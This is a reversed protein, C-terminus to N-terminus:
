FATVNKVFTFTSDVLHMFSPGKWVIRTDYGAYNNGYQVVVLAIPSASRSFASDVAQTVRTCVSDNTVITVLSSDIAASLGLASRAAAASTRNPNSESVTARIVRRLALAETTAARCSFHALHPTNSATARLDTASALAFSLAFFRSMM